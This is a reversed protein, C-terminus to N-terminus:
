EVVIVDPREDPRITEFTVNQMVFNKIGKVYLGYAPLTSGFMAGDAYGTPNDTFSSEKITKGGLVKLHINSLTVNEFVNETMNVINSTVCDNTQYESGECISPYWFDISKYKEDNNDAFINSLTINKISGVPTGEPARVNAM